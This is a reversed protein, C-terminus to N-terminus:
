IIFSEITGGFNEPHLVKERLVNQNIYQFSLVELGEAHIGANQLGNVYPDVDNVTEKPAKLVLVNM